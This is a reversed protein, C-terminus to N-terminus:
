SVLRSAELKKDFCPQISVFYVENSDDNLIYKKIITGILQQASKVTSLYPLAQQQSKEAYCVWGPCHSTLVPLQTNMEVENVVTPQQLNNEVYGASSNNKDKIYNVM